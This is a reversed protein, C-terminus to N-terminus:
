SNAVGFIDNYHKLLRVSKEDRRDQDGYLDTWEKVTTYREDVQFTKTEKLRNVNTPQGLHLASAVGASRDGYSRQIDNMDAPDVYFAYVMNDPRLRDLLHSLGNEFVATEGESTGEPFIILVGGNKIHAEIRAVIPVLELFNKPAPILHKKVLSQLSKPFGNVERVMVLVDERNLCDLISPIDGGGPHNSIIIGAETNLRKRMGEINGTKEQVYDPAINWLRYYKHAFDHVAAMDRVAFDKEFGEILKSQADQAIYDTFKESM